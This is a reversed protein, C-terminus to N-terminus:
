SNNSTVKNIEEIYKKAIKEWSYHDIIYQQAKEGFDKRYREDALLMNIKQVYGEINYPEVLFGNQGDKIADKLGELNSAIVPIGCYAAEIVSIGFGEMDGEIKINPQVFIDCTHFLLDRVPDSVYGLARVRKELNNKAIEEKINDRDPGDGAVVYLINEPLKPMVNAIFWAVGKRKALRGSTLVAKRGIIKEGIIKELENKSSSCSYKQLDIGNPIFAIKEPAIGKEIAVRVTENGVAILRDIKKLFIGSWLKQHFFILIKEYWVGLSSSGYNIDLGHIICIVPKNSFIKLFWAIISLNGDGLLVTDCHPLYCIARLLAYPAFLPLFKRGHRNAIVKVDAIKSLWVSLEYNQTEIGGVTPPFARSIFLIRM